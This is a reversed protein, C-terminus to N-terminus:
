GGPLAELNVVPAVRDAGLAVLGSALPPVDAGAEVPRVLLTRQGLVRDVGYARVTGGARALVISRPRDLVTESGASLGLADGLLRFAYNRGRLELAGGKAPLLDAAIRRVSEVATTPLAYVRDGVEVLLLDVFTPAGQREFVAGLLHQLESLQHGQARLQSSIALSSEHLRDACGALDDLATAVRPPLVEAPQGRAPRRLLALLGELRGVQERLVAVQEELLFHSVGTGGAREFLADAQVPSLGVQRDPARDVAV